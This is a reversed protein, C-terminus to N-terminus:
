VAHTKVGAGDGGGGRAEQGPSPFTLSTKGDEDRADLCQKGLLRM